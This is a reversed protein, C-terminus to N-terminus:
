LLNEIMQLQRVIRELTRKGVADLVNKHELDEIVGLLNLRINTPGDKDYITDVTNRFAQEMVKDYVELQNTM